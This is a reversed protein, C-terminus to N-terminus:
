IMVIGRRESRRSHMSYRRLSSRSISSIRGSRFVRLCAEWSSRVDEFNLCIKCTPIRIRSNPFPVVSLAKPKKPQRSHKSRIWRGHLHELNGAQIRALPVDPSGLIPLKGFSITLHLFCLGSSSPRCAGSEQM